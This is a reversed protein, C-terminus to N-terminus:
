HVHAARGKNGAIKKVCRISLNQTSREMSNRDCFFSIKAAM